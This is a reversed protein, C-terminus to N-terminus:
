IARNDASPTFHLNLTYIQLDIPVTYNLNIDIKGGTLVVRVDEARVPLDLDQAKALINDRVRDASPRQGTMAEIAVQRLYDQLVYNHFYVPVTKAAVYGVSTLVALTVILKLYGRGSDTRRM